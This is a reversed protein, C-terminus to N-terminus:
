ISPQAANIADEIAIRFVRTLTRTSLEKKISVNITSPIKTNDIVWEHKSAMFAEREMCLAYLDAERILDVVWAPPLPLLLDAYIRRDTEREVAEMDFMRKDKLYKKLPSPMDGLVAEHADHLLLYPTATLRDIDCNCLQVGIERVLLSHEAVTWRHRSHGRFRYTRSLSHAIVNPTIPTSNKHSAYDYVGGNLTQIWHACSVM